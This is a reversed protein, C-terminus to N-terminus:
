KNKFMKNEKKGKGNIGGHLWYKFDNICYKVNKKISIRQFRPHIECKWHIEIWVLWMELAWSGSISPQRTAAINPLMATTDTWGPNLTWSEWKSAPCTVPSETGWNEDKFFFIFVPTKNQEKMQAMNRQRRM